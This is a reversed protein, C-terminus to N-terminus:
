RIETKRKKFIEKVIHIAESNNFAKYILFSSLALYIVVRILGEYIQQLISSSGFNIYNTTLFSITAIILVPLLTSFILKIIDIKSVYCYKLALTVMILFFIFYSLFTGLAVGSIGFGLKIMVFSIIFNVFCSFLLIILYLLQRNTVLFFNGTMGVVAYFFLGFLLIQAPLIGNIYEPLLINILSPSLVCIVGIIIPAFLSIEKIPMEIYKRLSRADMNSGFKEGFRPYMVSNVATCILMITTFFTIGISYFGLNKFGLINVILLRDVSTFLYGVLSLCMIPLGIIILKKLMRTDIKLHVREKYNAISYIVGVLVILVQGMLLGSFSFLFILPITLLSVIGRIITIRSVLHFKNNAKFLANYSAGVFNLFIIISVFRLSLLLEPNVKLFFTSFFVAAFTLVGVFFNYSFATDRIKSFEEVKGKGRLIPIERHIANSVGLGAFVGYNQILLATHWIGWVTPGLLYAGFYGKFFGCIQAVVSALSFLGVDTIIQEKLSKTRLKPNYIEEISM